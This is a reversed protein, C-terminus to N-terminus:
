RPRGPSDAALASPRNFRELWRRGVQILPTEIWSKSIWAVLFTVLLALLLGGTTGTSGRVSFWRFIFPHYLYLGYSVSGVWVLPSWQLFNILRDRWQSRDLRIVLAVGITSAMAAGVTRAFLSVATPDRGFSLLSISLIAITAVVITAKPASVQSLLTEGHALAAGFGLSMFRTTSSMYAFDRLTKFSYGSEQVWWLSLYATFPLLGFIVILNTRRSLYLTVLPWFVYFHEEVALSWSHRFIAPGDGFTYLFNNLYVALIKWGGTGQIAITALLALYYIPFIRFLRKTYFSRISAFDSQQRLLIRTILFGSLVFFIDM